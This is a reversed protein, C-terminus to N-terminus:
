LTSSVQYREIAKKDEEIAKGDREMQRAVYEKVVRLTIVPNRALTQLVTIPAVLQEQDLHDLVEKVADGCDGAGM